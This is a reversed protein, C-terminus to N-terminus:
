VGLLLDRLTMTVAVLEVVIEARSQLLLPEHERADRGVVVQHLDDLEGIGRPEEGALEMGLELRSREIAMRDEAAEHARREHMSEFRLLRREQLLETDDFSVPTLTPSRVIPAPRGNVKIAPGHTISLRSDTSRWASRIRSTARATPTGSTKLHEKSLAFRVDPFGERPTPM